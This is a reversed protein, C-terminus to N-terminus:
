PQVLHVVRVVRSTGGISARLFYVGNTAKIGDDALGDWAVQYRGARQLGNVLGRVRRGAIDFVGIDVHEATGSVAYAFRTTRQFPNPVPRYLELEPEVPSSPSTVNAAPLLSPPVADPLPESGDLATVAVNAFTTTGGASAGWYWKLDTMPVGPTTVAIDDFVKDRGVWVDMRDSALAERTGNPAAYSLASGSHNLAWTIAQNGAMTPSNKGTVMDRLQFGAGGTTNLGLRAYTRADAEDTNALTFSAGVRFVQAALARSRIAALSVDFTLRLTQPAPEFDRTKSLSVADGSARDIRVSHSTTVLTARGPSSGFSEWPGQFPSGEPGSSSADPAEVLLTEAFTPAACLVLAIALLTGARTHRMGMSRVLSM